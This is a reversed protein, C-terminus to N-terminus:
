PPAVAEKIAVLDTNVRPGYTSFLTALRECTSRLDPDDTTSFRLGLNAYDRQTNPYSADDIAGVYFYAIDANKLMLACSEGIRSGSREHTCPALTCVVIATPSPQGFRSLFKDLAVREAHRWRGDGVYESTGIAYREGDYVGAAVLGKLPESWGRRLHELVAALRANNIAREDMM